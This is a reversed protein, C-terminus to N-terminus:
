GPKQLPGRMMNLVNRIRQQVPEPFDDSFTAHYEGDFRITGTVAARQVIDSVERLVRDPITGRTKVVEGQSFVISPAGFANRAFLAYFVAVSVLILLIAGTLATM